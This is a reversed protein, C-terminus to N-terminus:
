RVFCNLLLGIHQVCSFFHYKVCGHTPYYVNDGVDPSHLTRKVHRVNIIM